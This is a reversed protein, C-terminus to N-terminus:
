LDEDYNQAQTKLSLIYDPMEEFMTPYSLEASNGEDTVPPWNLDVKM